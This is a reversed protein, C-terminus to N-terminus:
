CKHGKKRKKHRCRHSLSSTSSLQLQKKLLGPPGLPKHPNPPKPAAILLEEEPNMNAIVELIVMEGSKSIFQPLHPSRHKGQM